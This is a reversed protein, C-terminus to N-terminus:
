VDGSLCPDPCPIVTSEPALEKPSVPGTGRDRDALEDISPEKPRGGMRGREAMSFQGPELSRLFSSVGGKRAKAKVSECVVVGSGDCTPCRELSERQYRKKAAESQMRTM